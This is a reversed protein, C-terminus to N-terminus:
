ILLTKLSLLFLAARIYSQGQPSIVFVTQRHRQTERHTGTEEKDSVSKSVIGPARCGDAKTRRHRQREGQNEKERGREEKTECEIERLGAAELYWIKM